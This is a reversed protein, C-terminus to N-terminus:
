SRLLKKRDRRVAKDREPKTLQHVHELLRRDAETLTKNRRTMAIEATELLKGFGFGSSVAGELFWSFSPIYKPLVRGNSMLLTMVGINSGTNLLTGISTKTHDGIYCGVKSDQTDVYSWKGQGDPMYMEVSSYDNKLDSNTTMAGLNVWEGVYAHGLFGDHYKNVYGHLISEEVEGGVRCVPGFSCGERINSRFIQTGAGIYCPGEIRSHPYVVAGREITVPGHHTDIVVEPHIEAEPAIYVGNARGYITSTDHFFGYIGRQDALKFDSTISGGNHQILEWQHRILTLDVNEHYPIEAGVAGLFEFINSRPLKEATTKTVRAYLLEGESSFGAVEEGDSELMWAGVLLQGNIILLDDDLTSLDNVAAGEPARLAFTETLYDRCFFSV